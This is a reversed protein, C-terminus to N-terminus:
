KKKAKGGASNLDVLISASDPLGLKKCLTNCKHTEFFKKIGETGKDTSGRNGKNHLTHVAPDTFNFGDYPNWTGQIDCILCTHSADGEKVPDKYSYHSFAQPVDYMPIFEEVTEADEDEDEDGEMIAGIVGVNQPNLSEPKKLVSGSNNNWKIYKGQLMKEALIWATGTGFTIYGDPDTVEYVGCDLFSVFLHSLIPENNNIQTLMHQRLTPTLSSQVHNMIMTSVAKNFQNAKITAFVQTKAFATHFKSDKLDESHKSEKVVLDPGSHVWLDKNNTANMNLKFEVGRFALREAGQAFFNKKMAIGSFDTMDKYEYSGAATKCWQKKFKAQHSMIYLIDDKTLLHHTFKVRATNFYMYYESIDLPVVKGAEKLQLDRAIERSAKASDEQIKDTRATHSKAGNGTDTRLSTLTSSISTFTTSLLNTSLGLKMFSGNPLVKSMKELVSFDENPNGIAVSNFRVRNVGFMEGLQSIKNTCIQLLEKRVQHRCDNTRSARCETDWVRYGHKCTMEQHDSPSGDSLFVILIQTDTYFDHDLLACVEDLANIYNGHYSARSLKRVRFADLLGVTIKVKELVIRSESSMEILSVVANGIKGTNKNLEM